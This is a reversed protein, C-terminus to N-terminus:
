RFRIGKPAAPAPPRAGYGFEFHVRDFKVGETAAEGAPPALATIIVTNTGATLLAPDVNISRQWWLAPDQMEAPLRERRPMTGVNVGNVVLGAQGWFNIDYVLTAQGVGAAEAASLTLTLTKSQGPALQFAPSANRDYSNQNPQSTGFHFTDRIDQSMWNGARAEQVTKPFAAVRGFKVPGIRIDKWPFDRVEPYDFCGTVNWGYGAPDLRNQEPHRTGGGYSIGLLHVHVESWPVTTQFSKLLELTGDENMDGYVDISSPRYEIRWAFLKDAESPDTPIRESPVVPTPNFPEYADVIVGGIAKRFSAAGFWFPTRASGTNAQDFYCPDNDEQDKFFVNISDMPAKYGPSSPMATMEGAALTGNAPTISVEWWHGATNFRPARFEVVGPTGASILMPNRMRASMSAEDPITMVGVGVGGDGGAVNRDNRRGDTLSPFGGYVATAQREGGLFIRMTDARVDWNDENWWVSTATGGNLVAAPRGSWTFTEIFDQAAAPAAAQFWLTSAILLRGTANRFTKNM